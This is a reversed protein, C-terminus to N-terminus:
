DDERSDEDQGTIQNGTSTMTCWSGAMGRLSVSAQTSADYEATLDATAQRVSYGPEIAFRMALPMATRSAIM